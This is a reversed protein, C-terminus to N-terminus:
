WDDLSLGIEAARVRWSVCRQPGEVCSKTSISGRFRARKAVPTCNDSEEVVPTKQPLGGVAEDSTAVNTQLTSTFDATSWGAGALPWTGM